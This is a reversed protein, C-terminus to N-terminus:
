YTVNLTYNSGQNGLRYISIYYNGTTAPTFSSALSGEPTASGWAVYTNPDSESVMVWNLESITDASVDIQIPIGATGKVLFKDSGDDVNINGNISITEEIPGSADEYTDNPESDAVLKVNLNYNTGQNGLKYVSIYYNGTKSPTFEAALAGDSTSTGWSVYSNLDDESVMVWNLEAITDATVKIQIPVDKIGKVLYKDSNDNASINGSYSMTKHIPGNANAYTDNPESETLGNPAEILISKTISTEAGENDTVKLTVNYTQAQTFTQSTTQGTGTQGNGFDWEYSTITGDEDESVSADFSVAENINGNAPLTFDATPPKNVVIENMTMDVGYGKYVNSNYLGVFSGDNKEFIINALRYSNESITFGNLTFSSSGEADDELLTQGDATVKIDDIFIGFEELNDDSWYFFGLEINKGAYSSLDFKAKSWKRISDKSIGHGPNRDTPDNPTDDNPNETTTINGEIATWDNTGVERVQVSAFDFLPDIDYYTIFSLEAQSKGTLDITTTMKNRSDNANGSYYANGKNMRTVSANTYPPDATFGNSSKTLTVDTQIINPFKEHIFIATAENKLENTNVKVTMSDGSKDIGTYGLTNNFTNTQVQNPALKIHIKANKSEADEELIFFQLGYEPLIMGRQRYEHNYYSYEDNFVPQMRDDVDVTEYNSKAIQYNPERRLSFAADHLQHEFRDTGTEEENYYRYMVPYQGADVIGAYLHGPHSVTDQDHKGRDDMYLEDIYWVVLGKNSISGENYWIIHTLAEDAGKDNRWELLYYHDASRKGNSTVFGDLTFSSTSEAGDQLITNGDATIKIDDIFIGQEPTNSDTWWNFKLELNKGKFAKLDFEADVWQNGSDKTIGHGPNRDTPDNPTDDNPNATTTINGEVATWNSTGVERVQVSAYDYEPDIDYWTKFSLMAKNASTLDVTATMTHNLDNGATSYYCMNGEPPVNITTEKSGLDIKILDNHTPNASSAASINVDMGDSTINGLQITETRAWDGGHIQQMEDRCYAGLAPILAGPVPGTYSGGMNSWEDVPPNAGSYYLDPMGLYHTYEHAALSVPFDQEFVLFDNAYISNQGYPVEVKLSNNGSDGAFSSRFPWIADEGLSGGGWEEGRGAHIIIVVDIEGDPEYINGDNDIDNPDARDYISLDLNPQDAMLLNLGDKVLLAAEDQETGNNNNDAGYYKANNPATYWGFVDGDLDYLNRSINRFYQRMTIYDKGNVSTYGNTGYFLKEYLDKEYSSYNQGTCHEDSEKTIMETYKYDQYDVLITLPKITVGNSINSFAPISHSALMLVTLLCSIVKKTKLIMVEM